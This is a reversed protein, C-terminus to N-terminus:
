ACDEPTGSGCSTRSTSISCKSSMSSRCIVSFRDVSRWAGRLELWIRLFRPRSLQIRGALLSPSAAARYLRVFLFGAVQVRPDRGRFVWAGGAFRKLATEFAKPSVADLVVSYNALD